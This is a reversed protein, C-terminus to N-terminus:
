TEMVASYFQLRYIDEVVAPDNIQSYIIITGKINSSLLWIHTLTQPNKRLHELQELLRSSQIENPTRLFLIDLIKTVPM